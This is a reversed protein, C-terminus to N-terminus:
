HIVNLGMIGNDYILDAPCKQNLGIGGVRAALHFVLDRGAVAELAAKPDRLDLEKSKPIFIKAPEAGQALLLKVVQRGVFGNGGTVTIKLNKFDKYLIM